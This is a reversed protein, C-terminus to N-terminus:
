PAADFTVGGDWEITVEAGCASCAAHEGEHGDGELHIGGEHGCEGCHYSYFINNLIDEM